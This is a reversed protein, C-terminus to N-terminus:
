THSSNLRTSKRDPKPVRKALLGLVLANDISLMGELLVLLGIVVLDHSTFTQHWFGLPIDNVALLPTFM